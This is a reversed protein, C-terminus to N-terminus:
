VPSSATPLTFYFKSGTGVHSEVWIRGGHAEVIGKAIALGLGIGRRDARDAQWYQGFVHPLQEPPIGPGNDVVAFRVEPEPLVDAKLVVRGGAPTFKIANGVLNSLVQQIRPPDALVRPMDSRVAAKLKLNGATALPRLTELAECVLVYPAEPRPAIALRGSEIRRVELLDQILRNMHQAGRRMIEAQRRLAAQTEPILEALLNAGMVITNLPNRLDHAVVGLMEDRARTAREAAHFLRANEVALAARRALEEALELDAPGYRRGSESMYLTLAGSVRDGVRLPVSVLSRPRLQMMLQLHEESVANAVLAEDSIFPLLVSEGEMLPKRLHYAAAERLRTFRVAEQVLPEKSADVHAVGLRNVTPGDVVDVVCFDALGPVALRVLTALTTQYDFSTGLVRSAEALFRARREAAEAAARAAQEEILQRATEEARKRETIDHVTGVRVKRGRWTTTRGALEAVIESGDKRVGVAEYREESGSRIHSLILERSAPTTVLELFNRGILEEREYGFMRAFSANADLIVGHDHIVIGEVAADALLRFREEGERLEEDTRRRALAAGLMAAAATLADIEAPDWRREHFDDTVGLVGWWDEGVFVPVAVVSCVGHSALFRQEGAPLAGIPGHITEGRSLTEWRGLGAADLALDHLTPDGLRTAVSPATWEHCVDARLVGQEDRFTRFMYVRSADTATGLLGLVEEINEEWSAGCGLFRTAAAAVARLIADRRRTPEERAPMLLGDSETVPIPVQAETARAAQPGPSSHMREM